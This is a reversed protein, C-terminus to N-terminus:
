RHPDNPSERQNQLQNGSEDAAGISGHKATEGTGAEIPALTM